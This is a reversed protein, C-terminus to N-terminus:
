ASAQDGDNGAEGAGAMEALRDCFRDLTAALAEEAQSAQVPDLVVDRPVSLLEDRLERLRPLLTAEIESRPITEGRRKLVELEALEAKAAAERAKSTAFDSGGAAKLRAPDLQGRWAEASDLWVRGDDRVPLGMKVYQTVRGPTVGWRAALQSKTVVEPAPM